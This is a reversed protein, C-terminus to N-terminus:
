ELIFDVSIRAINSRLSHMLDEIGAGPKNFIALLTYQGALGEPVMFNLIPHSTEDVPVLEKFVAPVSSFGNPSIYLLRGDDGMVAVWLDLLELRHMSEELRVTVLEGTTYVANLAVFELQGARPRMVEIIIPHQPMNHLLGAEISVSETAVASIIDVVDMGEIVKGFIAYGINDLSLNDETNIFFQSKASDPSSRRAMAISGRVNHLGEGLELAIAEHTEKLELAASYGGGQIMFNDIVRHFLTDDYFGEGVYSLFNQTTLPAKDAALEVSILGQTTQIDVVPNNSAFSILPSCAILLVIINLYNKFPSKKLM